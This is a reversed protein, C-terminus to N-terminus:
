RVEKLVIQPNNVLRDFGLGTEIELGPRVYVAIPKEDARMQHKLFEFSDVVQLDVPLLLLFSKVRLAFGFLLALFGWASGRRRVIRLDLDSRMHFQFRCMSGYILIADCTPYKTFLARTQAVFRMIKPLGPNRFFAFSDIVYVWFNGSLLWMLTHGALVALLLRPCVLLPKGWVWRLGQYLVGIIVLEIFIRLARESWDASHLAQTVWGVPLNRWARWKGLKRM